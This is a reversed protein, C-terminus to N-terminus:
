LDGLQPRILIEEVVASKSMKLAAVVTQAIDRAQMLRTEPLDVGAWSDSWTAGPLISTVKVQQERLEERLCKSFGLLAFKSISYSGGNPYAKISAVSCMNFIHGEALLISELLTRTLYYASYLNTEIQTEIQGDPENGIEGPLFVGANNVLVDIKNWEKKVCEGFNLVEEKKSLDASFTLIQREPFAKELATKCDRLTEANRACLALDYGEAALSEAIARGIGKSAGTIVAKKSM